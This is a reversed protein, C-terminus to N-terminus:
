YPLPLQVLNTDPLVVQASSTSKLQQKIHMVLSHIERKRFRVYGYHSDQAAILADTGLLNEMDVIYRGLETSLFFGLKRATALARVAALAPYPNDKLNIQLTRSEIGDFFGHEFIDSVLGNEDIGVAIAEVNLFTTRPLNEPNPELGTNNVFAWTSDLPWVDLNWRNIQLQFGGFRNERRIHPTLAERLEATTGNDVVIDIDRPKKRLGLVLLDRLVGGFVYPRWHRLRWEVLTSALSRDRKANM